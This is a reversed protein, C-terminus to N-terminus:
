IWMQSKFARARTDIKERHRCTTILVVTTRLHLMSIGFLLEDGAGCVSNCENIFNVMWMCSDATSHIYAGPVTKYIKYTYKYMVNRFLSIVFGGSQHSPRRPSSTLSILFTNALILIRWRHNLHNTTVFMHYYKGRRGKFFFNHKNIKYSIVYL